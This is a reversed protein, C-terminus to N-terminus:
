RLFRTKRTSAEYQEFREIRRKIERTYNKLSFFGFFTSNNTYEIRKDFENM